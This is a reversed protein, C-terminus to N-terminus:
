IKKFYLFVCEKLALTVVIIICIQGTRERWWRSSGPLKLRSEVRREGEV